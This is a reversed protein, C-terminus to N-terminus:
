VPLPRFAILGQLFFFGRPLGAPKKICERIALGWGAAATKRNPQVDGTFIRQLASGCITNKLAYVAVVLIEPPLLIFKVITKSMM